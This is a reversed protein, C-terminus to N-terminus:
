SQTAPKNNESAAYQWEALKQIEELRTIPIQRQYELIRGRYLSMLHEPDLEKAKMQEAERYYDLMLDFVEKESAALAEIKQENKKMIDAEMEQTAAAEQEDTVSLLEDQFKAGGLILEKDSKFRNDNTKKIQEPTLMSEISM